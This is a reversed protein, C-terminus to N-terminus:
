EGIMAELAYTCHILIVRSLHWLKTWDYIWGSKDVSLAVNQLGCVFSCETIHFIIKKLSSRRETGSLTSGLQSLTGPVSSTIGRRSHCYWIAPCSGKSPLFSHLTPYPHDPVPHNLPRKWGYEGRGQGDGAWWCWWTTSTNNTITTGLGVSGVM